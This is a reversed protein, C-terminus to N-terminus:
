RKELSIEVGIYPQISFANDGETDDNLDRKSKAARKNLQKYCSIFPGQIQKWIRQDQTQDEKLIEVLTSNESSPVTTESSSHASINARTTTTTNLTSHRFLIIMM